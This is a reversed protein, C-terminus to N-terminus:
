KGNNADIIELMIITRIYFIINSYFNVTGIDLCVLSILLMIALDKEPGKKKRLIRFGQYIFFAYYVIFLVIGGSVLIEMYNNHCYYGFGSFLAFAGIGWGFIPKEALMQGAAKIMEIRKQTSSVDITVSTTGKSLGITYMMSDVRRGILTYLFSVKHIVGWLIIVFMVVLLLQKVNIRQIAKLAYIAIPICALILGNKSGTFFIVVLEFMYLVFLMIKKETMWSFATFLALVGFTWTITNPNIGSSIGLRYGTNGSLFDNWRYLIMSYEMTFIYIGSCLATLICAIKFSNCIQVKYQLLIMQILLIVLFTTTNYLLSFQERNGSLRMGDLTILTFVVILWLTNQNIFIHGSKKLSVQLWRIVLFPILVVLAKSYCIELIMAIGILIGNILADKQLRYKTEKM